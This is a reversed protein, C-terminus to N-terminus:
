VILYVCINENWLAVKMRKTSVESFQRKKHAELQKYVSMDVGEQWLGKVM